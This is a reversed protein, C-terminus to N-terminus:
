VKPPPEVPPMAQCPCAPRLNIIYILSLDTVLRSGNCICITLRSNDVSQPHHSQRRPNPGPRRPCFDLFIWRCSAEFPM